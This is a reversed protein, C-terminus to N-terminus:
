VWHEWESDCHTWDQHLTNRINNLPIIWPVSKKIEKDNWAQKAPKKNQKRSCLLYYRVNM